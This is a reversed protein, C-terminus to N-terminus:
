IKECKELCFIAYNYHVTLDPLINKAWIRMDSDSSEISVREFFVLMDEQENIILDCYEKDFEIMEKSLMKYTNLVTTTTSNPLIILKKKAIINLDKMSKVHTVEIMKGLVGVDLIKSKVQALQGLKIEKLNISAAKLIFQEDQEKQSNFIKAATYAQALNQTDITGRRKCSFLSFLAALIFVTFVVIKFHLNRRM